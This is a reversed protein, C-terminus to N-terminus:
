LRQTTWEVRGRVIRIAAKVQGSMGGLDVVVHWHDFRPPRIQVPSATAWGGYYTFRGGSRYSSFASDDLLMVNAQHDLTVLVIESAGGQFDTHLFNM